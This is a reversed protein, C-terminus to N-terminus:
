LEQGNNQKRYEKPSIGVEKKFLQSFQSSSCFGCLSAVNVISESTFVLLGKANDIRRRIIYESPSYGTKKKFIQRFHRESYGCMDALKVVNLEESFFRNIYSIVYNISGSVHSNDNNRLITYYLETCYVNNFQTMYPMAFAYEERIKDICRFITGDRDAYLGAPIQQECPGTAFFTLIRISTNKKCFEDHASRPPLFAFNGPTYRYKVGEINTYGVGSEYYVVEYFNHQHLKGETNEERFLAYYLDLKFPM